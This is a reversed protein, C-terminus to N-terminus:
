LTGTLVLSRALVQGGVQCFIDQQGYGGRLEVRAWVWVISVHGLDWVAKIIEKPDLIEKVCARGDWREGTHVVRGAYDGAEINARPCATDVGKKAARM